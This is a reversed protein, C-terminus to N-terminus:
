FFPKKQAVERLVTAHVSVFPLVCFMERFTWYNLSCSGSLFRGLDASLELLPRPSDVCGYTASSDFYSILQRTILTLPPSIFVRNIHTKWLHAVVLKQGQRIVVFVLLFFGLYVAELRFQQLSARLDFRQQVLFAIELMRDLRTLNLMLQRVLLIVFYLICLEMFNTIEPLLHLKTLLHTVCIFINFLKLTFM